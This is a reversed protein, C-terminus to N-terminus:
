DYNYASGSRRKILKASHSLSRSHSHSLSLSLSFSFSFSLSLAPRMRMGECELNAMQFTTVLKVILRDPHYVFVFLLMFLVLPFMPVRRKALFHPTIEAIVGVQLRIKNLRNGRDGTMSFRYRQTYTHQTVFRFIVINIIRGTESGRSILREDLCRTLPTVDSHSFNQVLFIRYLNFWICDFQM